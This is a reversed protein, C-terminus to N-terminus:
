QAGGNPEHGPPWLFAIRAFECKNQLNLDRTVLAVPSLAYARAVEVTSALLRDDPANSDLWPLSRDMQPEHPWSLLRSRQSRLVVGDVLRGRRRYEGIQRILKRAKQIVDQNRHAGDKHADLEGIVAPVLVVAFRRCDEFQWDELAPAAYLANTDPIVVAEDPDGSGLDEVLRTVKALAALAEQENEAVTGHVTADDQDVTQLFLSHAEDARRRVSTPQNGLVTDVLAGFQRYSERLRNQMPRAAAPLPNWRHPKSSVVMFLGGGADEFRPAVTSQQMLAKLGGRLNEAEARVTDRISPIM